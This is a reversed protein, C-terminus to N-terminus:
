TTLDPPLMPLTVFELRVLSHDVADRIARQKPSLGDRNTKVEVLVVSTLEGSTLGDFVVFDIPSGLFRWDGAVFRAAMEPMFPALHQAANGRITGGATALSHARARTVDGDTRTFAAKYTEHDTRLEGHEAKLDVLERYLRLMRIVVVVTVAIVVVLACILGATMATSVM